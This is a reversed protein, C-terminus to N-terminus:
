NGYKFEEKIQFGLIKLYNFEDSQIEWRNAYNDVLYYRNGKPFIFKVESENISGFPTITRVM